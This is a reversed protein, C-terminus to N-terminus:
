WFLASTYRSKRTRLVAGCGHNRCVFQVPCRSSLTEVNRFSVNNSLFQNSRCLLSVTWDARICSHSATNRRHAWVVYSYKSVIISIQVGSKESGAYCPCEGKSLYAMRKTSDTEWYWRRTHSLINQRKKGWRLAIAFDSFSNSVHLMDLSFTLNM